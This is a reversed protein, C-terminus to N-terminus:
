PPPRFGAARLAAQAGGGALDAVFARAAAPQESGKVVVAAYAVAPRLRAPLDIALLREGAARVDTAYVFGADVAGQSLKGVVGGVDPEATRINRTIAERARAPMREIVTRAYAGVPVSKAGIAIRVGPRVLDDLSRVASSPAAPVALVLTNAAFVVPKEALGEAHLQDPLETDAAAFVDPRVGSRVQAALEDSGGFGLRVDAAAYSEAYGTFATKLSTAAAVTLQRTSSDRSGGGSDGCAALASLVSICLVARSM